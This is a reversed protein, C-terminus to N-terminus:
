FISRQKDNNFFFTQAKRQWDRLEINKVNTKTAKINLNNKEYINSSFTDISNSTFYDFSNYYQM